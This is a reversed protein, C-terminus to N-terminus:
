ELDSPLHPEAYLDRLLEWRRERSDGAERELYGSVLRQGVDYTVAYSRYQEFFRLSREARARSQLAYHQLWELAEEDTWDGDLYRRAAETRAARLQRTLSELRLSLAAKAPDLGALPFLVDRVFGLRETEDFAVDLAVNAGGENLTARPCFLPQISYECWGQGRVLLEETLVNQVHHGPYGEHAALGLPTSIRIPPEVNVQILSRYDGKYWNYAGWSVGTVYETTFSEGAPLSLHQLTRRRVEEIARSFVADVRDRPVELEGRFAEVRAILDGEGPVTADLQALTADLAEVDCPPAVVDYLAKSEEDFSRRMGGVLEIRAKLAAIHASLFRVRRQEVPELGAPDIAELAGTLAIAEDLLRKTPIQAAEGEPLPSPRWAEPGTYADVFDPDYRGLELCLRVYAEAARDIVAHQSRDGVGCSSLVSGLLLCAVASRMVM